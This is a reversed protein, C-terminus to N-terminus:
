PSAPVCTVGDLLRSLSPLESESCRTRLCVTLGEQERVEIGTFNTSVEVQTVMRPPPFPCSPGWLSATQCRHTHPRGPESESDSSPHPQRSGCFWSGLRGPCSAPHGKLSIATTPGWARQQPDVSWREPLDLSSFEGGIEKIMLTALLCPSPSWPGRPDPVVGGWGWSILSFWLIASPWRLAQSVM